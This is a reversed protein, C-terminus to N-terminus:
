PSKQDRLGDFYEKVLLLVDRACGFSLSFGAGGHGYNHFIATGHEREVRPQGRFPRVGVRYYYPMIDAKELPPYFRVCKNKMEELLRLHEYAFETDPKDLQAYGGLVVVDDNRPTIFVFSGNESEETKVLSLAAEIKPLKEGTNKVHILFGRLPRLKLDNTLEKAGYGTCNVLIDASHRSLLEGERDRLLGTVSGTLLEAGKSTVLQILWQLYQETDIVLSMHEYADVVHFGGKEPDINIGQEKAISIDRRFSNPLKQAIENMKILAKGNDVDEIPRPFFFCSLRKRIGTAESGLAQLLEEFKEYAIWGWRKMGSVEAETDVDRFGSTSSPWGWLAAAVESVIKPVAPPYQKALVTVKCGSDLLQWATTLGSVGGGLVLVHPQRGEPHVVLIGDTNLTTASHAM